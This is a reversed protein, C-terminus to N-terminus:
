QREVALHLIRLEDTEEFTDPMFCCGTEVRMVEQDQVQNVSVLWNAIFELRIQAM